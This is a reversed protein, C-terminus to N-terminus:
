SGPRTAAASRGNMREADASPPASHGTPSPAPDDMTTEAAGGLPYVAPDGAAHDLPGLRELARDAAPSLDAAALIRVAEAPDGNREARALFERLWTEGMPLRHSVMGLSEEVADLPAARGTRERGAAALLDATGAAGLREYFAETYDPDDACAALRRWVDDPVPERGRSAREFVLVDARAAKAAAERTPFDGLDPGAGAGAPAPRPPRAARPTGTTGAGAGTRPAGTGPAAGPARGGTAGRMRPPAPPATVGRSRDPHTIAYNRRRALMGLQETAWQEAQAAQRYGGTPVGPPPRHARLWSTIATGADGVQEILHGLADPDIGRFDPDRRAAARMGGNNGGM